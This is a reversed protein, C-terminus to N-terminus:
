GSGGKKGDEKNPSRLEEVLGYGRRQFSKYGQSEVLSRGVGEHAVWSEISIFNTRGMRDSIGGLLYVDIGHKKRLTQEAALQILKENEIVEWPMLNVQFGHWMSQYADVGDLVIKKAQIEEHPRLCCMAGPMYGLDAAGEYMRRLICMWGKAFSLDDELLVLGGVDRMSGRARGLARVWTNVFGGKSFRWITTGEAELRDLEAKKEVSESGDDIVTLSISATKNFSAVTESLLGPREHTLMLAQVAGLERARRLPRKERERIYDDIKM